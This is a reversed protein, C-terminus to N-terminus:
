GLSCVNTANLSQICLSRINERSSFLLSFSNFVIIFMGSFLLYLFFSMDGNEDKVINSIPQYGRKFDNIGRYLDRINKNKSNM